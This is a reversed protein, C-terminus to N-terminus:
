AKASTAGFGRGTQGPATDTRTMQAEVAASIWGITTTM